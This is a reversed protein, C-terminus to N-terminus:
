LGFLYGLSVSFYGSNAYREGDGVTQPLNYHYSLDLDFNKWSLNVPLRVQVNLLGFVDKYSTSLETQTTEDFYAENLLFEATESGWFLSVAPELRLYDFRGFRLLYIYAYANWALQKGFEKGGLVSGDFRTGLTKTKLTFGANLSFNYNPDFDPEDNHFVFYDASFRYRFFPWRKVGKGFGASLVTTRYAPELESYWSGSVGAFFGVSHMYYIQGSVSSQHSGIERGAFYTRSNASFGAYIFRFNQKPNFLDSPDDDGFLVDNLLSDVRALHEGELIKTKQAAGPLLFLVVLWVALGFKKM